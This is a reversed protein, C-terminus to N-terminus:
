EEEIPTGLERELELRKRETYGLVYDLARIYGVADAYSKENQCKGLVIKDAAAQRRAVLDKHLDPALGSPGVSAERESMFDFFSQESKAM